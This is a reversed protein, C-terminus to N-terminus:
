RREGKGEQFDFLPGTIPSRLESGLTVYTLSGVLVGVRAEDSM